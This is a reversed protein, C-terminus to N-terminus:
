RSTRFGPVGDGPRVRSMGARGLASCVHRPVQPEVLIAPRDSTEVLGRQPDAEAARGPRPWCNPSGSPSVDAVIIEGVDKNVGTFIGHAKM